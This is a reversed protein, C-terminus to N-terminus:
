PIQYGEGIADFIAVTHKAQHIADCLASHRTGEFEPEEVDKFLNKITRYCMENRYSWPVKINYAKYAAELIKLDFSASNGWIRIRKPTDAFYFINMWDSFATLALIIDSSKNCLLSEQKAADSQLEWWAVTAPEEILKREQSERNIAIHFSAKLTTNFTCAGIAIIKCGPSIGLTELDLMIDIQTIM